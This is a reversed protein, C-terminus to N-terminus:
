PHEDNVYKFKDLKLVALTVEISLINLPQVFNFKKSKDLKLVKL